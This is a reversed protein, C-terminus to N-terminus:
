LYFRYYNINKLNQDNEVSSIDEKKKGSRGAPFLQYGAENLSVNLLYEDHLMKVAHLIFEKVTYDGV